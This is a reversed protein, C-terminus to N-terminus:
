ETCDETDSAFSVIIRQASKDESSERELKSIKAEVERLELGDRINLIEKLEKLATTILKLGNRDVTSRVHHLIERESLTERTAKDTRQPHDYIMEKEKYVEKLTQINLEDVALAIKGLLRRGILDMYEGNTLNGNPDPSEEEAKREQGQTRVLDVDETQEMPTLEPEHIEEMESTPERIEVAEEGDKNGHPLQNSLKELKKGKEVMERVYDKRAASWAGKLARMALTSRPIAHRRALENQSMTGTVYELRIKEWDIVM